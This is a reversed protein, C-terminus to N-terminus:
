QRRGTPSMVRQLALFTIPNVFIIAAAGVYAYLTMNMRLQAIRNEAAEKTKLASVADAMAQKWDRIKFYVLFGLIIFTSYISTGPPIQTAAVFLDGFVTFVIKPARNITTEM